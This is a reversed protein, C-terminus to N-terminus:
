NKRLYYLEDEIEKKLKSDPDLELFKVFAATAQRKRGSEKYVYGLRYYVEPNTPELSKAKLYHKIALDLRQRELFIKGLGLYVEVSRPNLKRARIFEKGAENQKNDKLLVNALKIRTQWDNPKDKLVERYRLAANRYDGVRSYITAALSTGASNGPSMQLFQELSRLAGAYDNVSFYSVALEYYSSAYDPKYSISKILESISQEYNKLLRFTIGLYNRLLFDDSKMAIAEQLVAFAQQGQGQDIYNKALLARHQVSKPELEVLQKIVSTAQKYDQFRRATEATLRLTTTNKPDLESAKNLYQLAQKRNGRAAYIEGLKSLVDPSNPAITLAKQLLPLPKKALGLKLYADSLGLYATINQPDLALTKNFHQVALKSQGEWLALKGMLLQASINDPALELSKAAVAKAEEPKELALWTEALEILGDVYEPDTALAEQLVKVSQDFNGNLRLARGLTSQYRTNKPAIRVAKRLLVLAENVESTLMATALQHAYDPNSPDADYAKKILSTEQSIGYQFAFLKARELSSLKSGASKLLAEAQNYTEQSAPATEILAIKSLTHPPTAEALQRWLSEAEKPNNQRQAIEALRYQSRRLSPTLQYTAVAQELNGSKQYIEAKIFNGLPTTPLKGIFSTLGDNKEINLNFLAQAMIFNAPKIEPSLESIEKLIAKFYKTEKEALSQGFKALIAVIVVYGKALHQSPDRKVIADLEERVKKYVDFRDPTIKEEVEKTQALFAAREKKSPGGHYLRRLELLPGPLHEKPGFITLLTAGLLLVVVFIPAGIILYQKLQRPKQKREAALLEQFSSDADDELSVEQPSPIAMPKDTVDEARQDEVMPDPEFAQPSSPAQSVKALNETQVSPAAELDDKFLDEFEADLSDDPEERSDQSEVRNQVPEEPPQSPSPTPQPAQQDRDTPEAVMTPEQAVSVIDLDGLLDDDLSSEEVAVTPPTSTIDSPVPQKEEKQELEFLDELDLDDAQKENGKDLLVKAQCKPCTTQDGTDATEIAFSEGCQACTITM